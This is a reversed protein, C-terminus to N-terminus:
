KVNDTQGESQAEAKRLLTQILLEKPESTATEEATEETVPFIGGFEFAYKAQALQGKKAGDIIGRAIEEASRRVLNKINDLAEKASVPKESQPKTGTVTKAAAKAALRKAEANKHSRAKSSAKHKSKRTKKKHREDIRVVGV